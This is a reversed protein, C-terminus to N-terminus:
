KKSETKMMLVKQWLLIGKKNLKIKVCGLFTIKVNNLFRFLRFALLNM